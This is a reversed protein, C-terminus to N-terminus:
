VAWEFHPGDLFAKKGIARRRAAYDEVVRKYAKPDGGFDSLRRDWAGGWRINAAYGLQTAAWDIACVVPYILDWDWTPLTGVVPVCDIAHSFGDAQPLHMSHMTKSAGRNVNNRQEQVTRVGDFIMFDQTTHKIALNAIEVLEVKVGILEANSKRGFGFGSKEQLYSPVLYAAEGTERNRIVTSDGGIPGILKDLNVAESQPAEARQNVFGGEPAVGERCTDLFLDSDFFTDAVYGRIRATFESHKM